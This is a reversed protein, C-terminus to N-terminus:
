HGIAIQSESTTYFVSLTIEAEVGQKKPDTLTNLKIGDISVLRKGSELDNLFSILNMFSGNARLQYTAKDYEPKQEQAPAQSKEGEKGPAQTKAAPAPKPKQSEEKKPVVSLWTISLRAKEVGDRQLQDLFAPIQEETPILGLMLKLGEEYEAMKERTVTKPWMKLDLQVQNWEQEKNAIEAKTEKIAAISTHWFLLYYGAVILLVIGCFIGIRKLLNPNM